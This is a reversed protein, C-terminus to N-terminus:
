GGVRAPVIEGAEVDDVSPQALQAREARAERRFARLVPVLVV